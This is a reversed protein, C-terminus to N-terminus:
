VLDGQLRGSITVTAESEINHKCHRLRSPSEGDERNFM